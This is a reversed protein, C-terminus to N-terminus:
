AGVEVVAPAQRCHHHLMEILLIAAWAALGLGHVLLEPLPNVGLHFVRLVGLEPRVVRRVREEGSVIASRVLRVYLPSCVAMASQIARESRVEFMGSKM